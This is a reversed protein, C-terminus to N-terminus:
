FLLVAGIFMKTARRVRLRYDRFGTRPVPKRGIRRLGAAQGGPFWGWVIVRPWVVVGRGAAGGGENWIM